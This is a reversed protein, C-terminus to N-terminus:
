RHCLNEIISRISHAMASYVEVIAGSIEGVVAVTALGVASVILAYEVLDQGQEDQWLQVFFRTDVDTTKM